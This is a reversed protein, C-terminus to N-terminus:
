VQTRESGGSTAGRGKRRLGGNEMLSWAVGYGSRVTSVGNTTHHWVMKDCCGMRSIPISLIPGVEDCNCGAFILDKNWAKLDKDILENVMIAQLGERSRVRFTSPKPFWPDARINISAGNGVRWRLGNDLVKRAEFIGKWGWSTKRGGSAERFTRGPFYKERLVRGLLSKPNHFLRWGIKALFFLISVNYIELVWGRM